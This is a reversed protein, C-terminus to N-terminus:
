CIADRLRTEAPNERQAVACSAVRRAEDSGAKAARAERFHQLWRTQALEAARAYHGAAVAYSGSREAIRGLLEVPAPDWPNWDRSAELTEAARSLDSRMLEKGERVRRDGEWYVGLFGVFALLAAAGAVVPVVGPAGARRGPMAAGAALLAACVIGVFSWTWDLAAQTVLAVVAGAGAAVLLRDRGRLIGVLILTMAAGFLTVGVVGLEAFLELVISHPQLIYLQELRREAAWAIPYTGQGNGALPEARGEAWAVRWADRRGNLSLSILRTAGAATQNPDVDSFAAGFVDTSRLEAVGAPVIIVSAAVVVALALLRRVRVSPITPVALVAALVIGLVAWGAYARLADDLGEGEVLARDVDRLEFILGAGTALVPVARLLVHADRAVAVAVVVGLAAGGLGARSQTLLLTAVLTAAAAGAPARAWARRDQLGGIALALGVAMVGAQANHYGVSGQLTRLYYWGHDASAVLPTLLLEAAHIAIGGVVGALVLRGRGASALASGLLLAAAAILAQAAFRWAQDPLGGWATSALSWAALAALAAAAAGALRAPRFGCALVAALALAVAIGAPAWARVEYGGSSRELVAIGAAIAAPIATDVVRAAVRRRTHNSGSADPAASDSDQSSL